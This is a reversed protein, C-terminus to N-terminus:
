AHVGDRALISALAGNLERKPSAVSTRSRWAIFRDPRVVVAGDAGIGRLRLWACRPDFFDGDVHGIRLARIPMGDEEALQEAAECWDLGEEGAILLFEGPRVLDKIPFLREERDQLWVHPLQSGPRTSPLYIRVDDPNSEPPSGDPVVASSEYTYGFEVNLENFEMSQSRASRAVAEQLDRDAPDDSWLRKLAARNASESNEHSVGITAITQLHNVANELSRQVNRSDVPRREAEYSDLLEDGAKGELVAALKWCLNHVDHIASTLGLGGTPPHKHAADGVLFVRGQRFRDALVADLTWRSIKHVEVPHDGIGLSSRMEELVEQDSLARPDGAMYQLHVVWEESDPGWRDPGMPVMVVGGGRSPSTIWRILVDPDGAIGSFDASIHLTASESIAQFGEYGIGLLEPVTRGGDAAIVYDARVEYDEGSANDRIRATVLGDGERLDFLEHNFRIRGPSLEEARRKLLPELRIQPLNCQRKPSASSWSEDAGGGGWSQLKAIRRGDDPDDGAFGAYFASTAMAEAPTSVEEIADAVGVEELIEMARLNLVHAKPLDSTGPRSSVLLHDVGQTALLM